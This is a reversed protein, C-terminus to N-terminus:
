KSQWEACTFHQETELAADTGEVVNIIHLRADPERVKGCLGWPMWSVVGDEIADPLRHWHRCDECHRM